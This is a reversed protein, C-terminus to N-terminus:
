RVVVEPVAQLLDPPFWEFLVAQSEFFRAAEWKSRPPLLWWDITRGVLPRIRAVRFASATMEAARVPEISGDVDLNRDVLAAAGLTEVRSLQERWTRFDADGM